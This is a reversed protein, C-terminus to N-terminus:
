DSLGRGQSFDLWEPFERVRRQWYASDEVIAEFKTRYAASKAADNLLDYGRVLAACMSADHPYGTHLSELWKVIKTPNGGPAFNLNNIFNTVLNFTFWIEKLQENGWEQDTPERNEAGARRMADLFQLGENQMFVLEENGINEIFHRYVEIRQREVHNKRELRANKDIQRNTNWVSFAVAAGATLVSFLYEFNTLIFDFLTDM